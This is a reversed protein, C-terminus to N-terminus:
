QCAQPDFNKDGDPTIEEDGVVVAGCPMGGNNESSLEGGVYVVQTNGYNICGSGRDAEETDVLPFVIHAGDGKAKCQNANDIEHAGVAAPLTLAFAALAASLIKRM